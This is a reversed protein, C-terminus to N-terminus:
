NSVKVLQEMMRSGDPMIGYYHVMDSNITSLVLYEVPSILCAMVLTSLFPVYLCVVANSQPGQQPTDKLIIFELPESLSKDIYVAEQHWDIDSRKGYFNTSVLYMLIMTSLSQVHNLVNKSHVVGGMMSDYVYLCRHKIFFVVLIWHFSESVNVLIIINDVSDWLVNALLKYGRIYQSVHHEPTIFSMEVPSKDFMIPMAIHEKPTEIVRFIPEFVVLKSETFFPIDDLPSQDNIPNNVVDLPISVDDGFSYKEIASNVLVKDQKKSASPTQLGVDENEKEVFESSQQKVLRLENLILKVSEEVFEGMGNFQSDVMLTSTSIATINAKSIALWAVSDSITGLWDEPDTYDGELETWDDRVEPLWELLTKTGLNEETYGKMRSTRSYVSRQRTTFTRWLSSCCIPMEGESEMDTGVCIDKSISPFVVSSQNSPLGRVESWVVEGKEVRSNGDKVAKSREINQREDNNPNSYTIVERQPGLLIYTVLHNGWQDRVVNPLKACKSSDLFYPVLLPERFLGLYDVMSPLIYNRYYRDNLVILCGPIGCITVKGFHVSRRPDVNYPVHNGTLKPSAYVRRRRPCGRSYSAYGNVGHRDQYSTICPSSFSNECEERTSEDYSEYAKSIFPNYRVGFRPESHSTYSEDDGFEGYSIPVKNGENEGRFGHRDFRGLSQDHCNEYGGCDGKVEYGYFGESCDYNGM